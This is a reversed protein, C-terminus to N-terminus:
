LLRIILGSSKALDALEKYLDVCNSAKYCNIVAIAKLKKLDNISIYTSATHKIEVSIKVLTDIGGWVMYSSGNYAAGGYRSILESSLKSIFNSFEDAINFMLEAKIEFNCM